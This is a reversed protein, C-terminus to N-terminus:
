VGCFSSFGGDITLLSGTVFGSLEPCLLYLLTGLCEEPNGCRKMPTGAIVNKCRETPTGDEHYMMHRNLNTVFFGPAIANVRIGVPALYNALWQTFNTISAKAAAYIPILTMPSIAAASSMNIISCDKRGVMDKAIVQIPIFTGMFNLRYVWEVKELDLDFLSRTSDDMHEPTLQPHGTTALPHHAGAGNLLIDCPGFDAKVQAYAQEVSERSLVDCAYAKATGGTATIEDIVKQAAEPKIDFLAVRVGYETLGRAFVSCLAGGGGTIVATKGELHFQFDKM